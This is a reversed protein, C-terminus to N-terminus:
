DITHRYKLYTGTSRAARKGELWERLWQEATYFRLPEGLAHEVIEAILERARAETLSGKINLASAREISRCFEQAKQRDTQKTSRFTRKGNPLRYACYWYPSKGRPDRHLSAM